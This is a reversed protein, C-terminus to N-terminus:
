PDLGSSRPPESAGPSKPSTPQFPSGSGDESKLSTMKTSVFKKTKPEPTPGEVLGPDLGVDLGPDPGASPKEIESWVHM